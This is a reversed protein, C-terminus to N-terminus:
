RKNAVEGTKNKVYALVGCDCHCGQCLTRVVRDYSTQGKRM